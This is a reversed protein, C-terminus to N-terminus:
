TEILRRLRFSYATGAFIIWFFGYDHRVFRYAALNWILVFVFSAALFGCLNGPMDEDRCSAASANVLLWVLTALLAFGVIGLQVLIEAYTNHLHPLWAGDTMILEPRNSHALLYRSSGAGWGLWPRQSWLEAAYRLAQVRLGVSTSPVESLNGSLLKAYTESEAQLREDIQKHQLVIPMALAIAVAAAAAIRAGPHVRHGPVARRHSRWELYLLLTAAIAFSLWCGRSYSLMLGELMLGLLLLWLAIRVWRPTRGSSPYLFHERLAILGLTGLGAFMGFAIAPLYVEFRTSFFTADFQAWDIKRLAGVAFGFLALLLLMRIREPRGGAWYAFPIFLLLKIWDAGTEAAAEALAPAPATLYSVLSHLVVYLAFILASVAVPDRGLARWERFDILFALSLFVLGFTAPTIGLLALGCFLYIGVLGTRKLWDVSKTPLPPSGRPM